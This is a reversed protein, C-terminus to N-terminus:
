LVMLIMDFPLHVDFLLVQSVTLCNELSSVVRFWVDPYFSFLRLLEELDKM